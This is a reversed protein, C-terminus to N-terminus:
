TFATTASNECVYGWSHRGTPMSCSSRPTEVLDDLPIIEENALISAYALCARIDEITIGYDAVVNRMRRELLLPM